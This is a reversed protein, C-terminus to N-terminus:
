PALQRPAREMERGIFRLAASTESPCQVWKSLNMQNLDSGPAESCLGNNL